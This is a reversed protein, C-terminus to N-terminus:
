ANALAGKALSIQNNTQRYIEVNSLAKPSYNNQTFSQSIGSNAAVLEALAELNAGYGASADAASATVNNLDIPTTNFLDSIAGSGKKIESLDLVPTIVPNLEDLNGMMSGLGSITKGMTRIIDTGMNETSRVARYAHNDIGVAMGQSVYQGIYMFEKSPSNIGLVNLASDLLGSALNGVASFASSALNGVGDVIGDIIASAINGAADYLAGTNDRIAEAIGNATDIIMQFGADVVQPIASSLGQLFSVILNVGAQVIRPMNNAIGNLLNVIIDTATSVVEGMHNAIGNLFAMLITFGAEVMQPVANVIVTLLATLLALMTEAIQPTIDIIAQLLAMLVAVFAAILAPAGEAIVGAFAIIGAALMSMAYPILGLLTTIILGLAAAGAAGAAALATLALSFLLIGGAALVVGAGLMLVAAGVALLVVSVPALLFGAVGLVLFVAALGALGQLLEGWSMDAFGQIVPLLVQLAAAVIVIAVAGGISGQMLSLALAIIGLAGALGVIGRSLEEWSMSAMDQLADSIMSLSAAVVFIAAASFIAGSPLLKLALAIAGLAGAMVTLGRATEEWSMGSMQGVADAILSLSAAVVLISAAKFLSGEPILNLAGAILALGVGIGAMGQSLEEWNYAAFDGVASALIKLAVALLIIGAGQRIGGSDAEAFRTFLALAGLLVGVGVLGRALEEWSFGSLTEVSEVLIRIAVALLMLGAGTSVMKATNGSMLQVAGALAAILVTVGVLGKALENWDLESLAKVSATLIVIATSLFILAVGMVTIKVAQANTGIKSFVALAGGLQVFMVTLASTARVLGESDIGALVFVAAALLAIAGAIKLLAGAQLSTQMAGLVDTVGGLTERISDLVGGGAGSFLDFNGIVNRLGSLVRIFGAGLAIGLAQMITDANFDWGNGQFVDLMEGFKDVAGDVFDGIANGVTRLVGVVRNFITAIRGGAEEMPDFIGSFADSDIGDIGDVFSGIWTIVAQIARIVFQAGVAITDFIKGFFDGSKIAEHLAVLFDGVNATIGLFGEGTGSMAGLLDAFFGVGAKILEWVIGVIAFLGAFTRRLNNVTTESPILAAMLDRFGVTLSFLGEATQPPFVSRFAEGIPRLIGLLATGANRLGELLVDRGGLESWGQLLNNRADASRNIFGNIWTSFETFTTKAQEFDGFIYRFTQSWGSGATEKAVDFAQSLTKVETAALRATQATQQISAIQAESFGQAALEADTLDGTFQALTTTLVDSTLWSPGNTADISERFSKGAISVNQMDGDLTVTGESLTGMAEATQALARQFVTGGMGANVVSNWDQLSVRGASIAQSLQYMAGSAQQSNSGSLAALNSIGKISQVSADLGVGAATFTGINRAMESFNYITQDSYTNLEDLAANVETLGAGSVQTNSLITQISNLNTEYEHLGSMIPAITLSSAVQQGIQLAKSGISALAGFAVAQLATFQGAIGGTRSSLGDLGRAAEASGDVAGKLKLGEQLKSLAALTDSIGKGFESNKFQMEVVRQDVSSMRFDGGEM